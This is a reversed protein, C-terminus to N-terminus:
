EGGQAERARHAVARCHPCTEWDRIGHECPRMGRLFSARQAEHMAARQDPTMGDIIEKARRLLDDLRDTHSPPFLASRIARALFRLGNDPVWGKFSVHLPMGDADVAAKMVAIIDDESPALALGAPKGACARGKADDREMRMTDRVARAADRDAEADRRLRFQEVREGEKAALAMELDAISAAMATVENALDDRENCVRDIESLIQETDRRSIVAGGALVHM